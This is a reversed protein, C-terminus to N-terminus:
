NATPTLIYFSASTGDLNSSIKGQVTGISKEAWVDFATYSDAGSFSSFKLTATAPASNINLLVVAVAGKPTSLPKVWSQAGDENANIQTAQKGLPDQNVSIAYKNTLIRKTDDTMNTLDNGAILPSALMCWMAFHAEDQAVTM